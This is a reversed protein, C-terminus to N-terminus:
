GCYKNLKVFNKLINKLKGWYAGRDSSEYTHRGIRNRFRWENMIM